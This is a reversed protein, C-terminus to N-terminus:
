PWMTHPLITSMWEAVASFRRPLFYSSLFFSSVVATFHLTRMQM